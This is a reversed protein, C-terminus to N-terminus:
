QSIQYRGCSCCHHHVRSRQLRQEAFAASVALVVLVPSVAPVSPASPAPRQQAGLHPVFHALGPPGLELVVAAEAAPRPRQQELNSPPLAAV